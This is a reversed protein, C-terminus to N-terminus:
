NIKTKFEQLQHRVSADIVKHNVEAIFGGLIEPKIEQNIQGIKFGLLEEAKEALRAKQSDSLPCASTVKMDYRGTVEQSQNLVQTLSAYALEFESASIIREFFAQLVPSVEKQFLQLINAKVDLGITKRAFFAELKQQDFVSLVQRVEKFFETLDGRNRAENVLQQSYAQVRKYKDAKM